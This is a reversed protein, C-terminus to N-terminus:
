RVSLQTLKVLTPNTMIYAFTLHTSLDNLRKLLATTLGNITNFQTSKLFFESRRKCICGTIFFVFVFCHREVVGKCFFHTGCLLTRVVDFKTDWPPPNSYLNPPNGERQFFFHRNKKQKLHFPNESSTDALM